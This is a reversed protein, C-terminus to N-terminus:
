RKCRTRGLAFQAVWKFLANYRKLCKGRSMSYSKVLLTTKSWDELASWNWFKSSVAYCDFTRNLCNNRPTADPLVNSFAHGNRLLRWHSRVLYCPSQWQSSSCISGSWRFITFKKERRNKGRNSLKKPFECLIGRTILPHQLQLLKSAGTRSDRHPNQISKILFCKVM